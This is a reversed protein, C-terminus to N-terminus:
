RTRCTQIRLQLSNSLVVSLHGKITYHKYFIDLPDTFNKSFQFTPIHLYACLHLCLYRPLAL